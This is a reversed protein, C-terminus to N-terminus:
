KKRKFRQYVMTGANGKALEDDKKKKAEKEQKELKERYKEKEETIININKARLKNGTKNRGRMRHKAKKPNLRKAEEEAAKREQEQVAMPTPDVGGILTPDLVIMEPQIKELLSHVVQERQQKSNQFPNAEFADYNAVGAGPIAITQVGKTTGLGLIDEYPRFKVDQIEQGPIAHRMYPSQQKTKLADKWIQVQFGCGVALLGRQSIDLSSPARPTVYSFVKKYMRVDWIHVRGDLGGTVMEHGSRDVAMARVPGGHCFMKVLPKNVSPSWMSVTGNGHGLCVVANAPNQVMAGCPGLKTRHESILDGTSVDQYKLWGGHGISALLFHYPLYQLRDPRIHSKLRHVEAGHEDYIYVHKKQAAAFMEQSHLFAVDRVTEQVFAECKPTNRLADIVSLHGRKGGLVMYRGNKTWNIRYPAYDTLELNLMRSRTGMDASEQIQRQTFKYTKEMENETELFGEQETLLIEARAASEVAEKADEIHQEIEARVKQDKIKHMKVKKGKREYKKMASTLMEERIEKRLELRKEEKTPEKRARKRSLRELGLGAGDDVVDDARDVSIFGVDEVQDGEAAVSDEVEVM